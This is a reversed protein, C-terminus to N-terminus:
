MKNLTLLLFIERKLTQNKKQLHIRVIFRSFGLSSDAVPENQTEAKRMINSRNKRQRLFCDPIPYIYVYGSSGAKIIM